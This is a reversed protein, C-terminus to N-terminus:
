QRCRRQRCTGRCGRLQAALFPQWWRPPSSQLTTMLAPGFKLKGSFSTCSATYNTADPPPVVVRQTAGALSGSATIVSVSHRAGCRDHIAQSVHSGKGHQGCSFGQVQQSRFERGHLSESLPSGLAERTTPSIFALGMWSRASPAGGGGGPRSRDYACSQCGPTARPNPRHCRATDV